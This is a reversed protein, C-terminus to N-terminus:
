LTKLLYLFWRSTHTQSSTSTETSSLWILTEVHVCKNALKNASITCHKLTTQLSRNACYDKKISISNLINRYLRRTSWFWSSCILILILIIAIEQFKQMQWENGCWGISTCLNPWFQLIRYELYCFTDLTNKLPMQSDWSKRTNMEACTFDSM